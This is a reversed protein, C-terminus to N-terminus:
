PPPNKRPLADSAAHIMDILADLGREAVPSMLLANNFLLQHEDRDRLVLGQAQLKELEDYLTSRPMELVRSLGIVSHPNENTEALIIKNAVAIMTCAKYYPQQPFYGRVVGLFDTFFQHVIRREESRPVQAFM